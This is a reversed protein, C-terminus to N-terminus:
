FTELNCSDFMFADLYSDLTPLTRRSECINEVETPRRPADVAEDQM